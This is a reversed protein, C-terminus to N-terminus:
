AYCTASEYCVSRRWTSYGTTSSTAAACSRSIGLQDIERLADSLAHVDARVDSVFALRMMAEEKDGAVNLDAALGLVNPGLAVRAAGAAGSVQDPHTSSRAQPVARLPREAHCHPPRQTRSETSRRRVAWPRRCRDSRRRLVPLGRTARHHGRRRSGSDTPERWIGPSAARSRGTCSALSATRVTGSPAERVAAGRQALPGLLEPDVTERRGEQPPRGEERARAADQRKRSARSRM